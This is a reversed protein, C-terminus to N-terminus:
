VTHFQHGFGCCPLLEEPRKEGEAQEEDKPIVGDHPGGGFDKGRRCTNLATEDFQHVFV